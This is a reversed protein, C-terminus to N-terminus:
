IGMSSGLSIVRWVYLTTQDSSSPSYTPRHASNGDRLQSEGVRWPAWEPMRWSTDSERASICAVLSAGGFGADVAAVGALLGQCGGRWNM